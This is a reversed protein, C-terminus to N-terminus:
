NFLNITDPANTAPEDAAPEDSVTRRKKEHQHGGQAKEM